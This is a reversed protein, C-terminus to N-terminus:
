ALRRPAQTEDVLTQTATLDRETCGPSAQLAKREALLALLKTPSDHSLGHLRQLEDAFRIWCREAEDTIHELKSCCM